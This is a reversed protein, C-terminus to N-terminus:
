IAVGSKRAAEYYDGIFKDIIGGINIYKKTVETVNGMIDSIYIFDIFKSWIIFYKDGRMEGSCIQVTVLRKSYIKFNKM